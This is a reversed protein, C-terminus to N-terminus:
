GIQMEREKIKEEMQSLKSCHVWGMSKMNVRHVLQNTRNAVYFMFGDQSPVPMSGYGVTRVALEKCYRTFDTNFFCCWSIIRPHSVSSCGKSPHLNLPPTPWYGQSEAWKDLIEMQNAPKTYGWRHGVIAPTDGFLRTDPWTHKSTTGLVDLDLKLWYPATVYEAATYLFGALMKQRQAITWRTGDEFYKATKPLFPVVNISPFEAKVIDETEPDDVFATVHECVDPHFQQWTPWALRLHPLHAADVGIVTQYDLSSM